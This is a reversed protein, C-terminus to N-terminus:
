EFDLTDTIIPTGYRSKDFYEPKVHRCRDYILKAMYADYLATHLNNGDFPVQLAVLVDGLKYSKLGPHCTKVCKMVDIGKRQSKLTFDYGIIRSKSCLFRYDFNVNYGCIPADGCFNCFEPLVQQISECNELDKNSIGTLRRIEETVYTEPKVRMHFKYKAIGDIFLWAGIEIIDCTVPSFGTTELDLFVLREGFEDRNVGM